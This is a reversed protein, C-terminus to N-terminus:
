ENYTAKLGQIPQVSYTINKRAINTM